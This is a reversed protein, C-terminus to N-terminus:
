TILTGGYNLSFRCNHIAAPTKKSSKQLNEIPENKGLAAAWRTNGM